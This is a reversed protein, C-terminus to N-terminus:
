CKREKTIGNLMIDVLSTIMESPLEDRRVVETLVGHVIFGFTKMDVSDRLYPSLMETIEIQQKMFCKKNEKKTEESVFGSNKYQTIFRFYLKNENAMTIVSTLYTEPTLESELDTINFTHFSKALSYEFLANLLEAKSKYHSYLSSLPMECKDAIKRMSINELGVQDILELTSYIISSQKAM